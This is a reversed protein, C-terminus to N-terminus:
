PGVVVVESAHFLDGLHECRVGVAVPVDGGDEGVVQGEHEVDGTRRNTDCVAMLHTAGTVGGCPDVLPPFALRESPLRDGVRM